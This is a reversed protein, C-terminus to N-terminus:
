VKYCSWGEVLRAWDRHRLGGLMWRMWLRRWVQKQLRILKRRSEGKYLRTINKLVMRQMIAFKKFSFRRQLTATYDLTILQERVYAIDAVGCIRMWMDVDAWNLFQADFPLLREYFSRRVMVTGWIISDLRGLYYHQFFARGETLVKPEPAWHEVFRDNDWRSDRCFVMGASPNSDLAVSWKELLTPEFLDADHLNAIYDGTAQAIVANLNGPMGLNMANRHYIFHPFRDKWAIAVNTPDHQSCDDWLFVEDPVRTQRALSELTAGLKDPRNYHTLCVSVRPM